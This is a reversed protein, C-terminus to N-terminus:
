RRVIAAISAGVAAAGVMYAYLQSKTPYLNRESNIQERLRNGQEDKYTQDKRALEDALADASQKIQLAEARLQQGETARRDREHHFRRDAKALESRHEKLTVVYGRTIAKDLDGAM